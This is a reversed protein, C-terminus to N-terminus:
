CASVEHEWVPPPTTGLEGAIEACRDAGLYQATADLIGGADSFGALRASLCLRYAQDLDRTVGAGEFHLCALWYIARPLGSQAARGIWHAAHDDSHPVGDGAAYMMALELQADAVGGRAAHTLLAVAAEPQADDEIGLRLRMALEYMATLDGNQAAVSLDANRATGQGM